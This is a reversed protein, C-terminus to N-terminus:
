TWYPTNVVQVAKRLVARVPRRITPPPANAAQYVGGEVDDALQSFTRVPIEERHAALWRCLRRFREIVIRNPRIGEYQVNRVKFLSFSHLILVADAGADTIRRIAEICEGSSIGVLDLPKAPHLGPLPPQDYASLGLELVPGYWKSGNYRQDDMFGCQGGLYPFTYSSDISLGAAPMQELTVESAGMNGARFARPRRGTWGELRDAGATLMERQADAPLEAIQDTRPADKGERDLKYHWHNPHIHLQVDQGADLLFECVGAGEGPYGQEDIFSEVFFTAELGERNLMECILPIGLQRRGADGYIGRSPPVCRVSPDDWAGGMSCEVDFTIYV